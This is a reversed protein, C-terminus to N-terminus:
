RTTPQHEASLWSRLTVGALAGVLAYVAQWLASWVVQVMVSPSTLLWGIRQVHDGDPISLGVSLATSHVTSWVLVTAFVTVFAVLAPRTQVWYGCLLGPLLSMIITMPPSIWVYLSSYGSPDGPNMLRQMLAGLFCCLLQLAFVLATSRVLNTSM